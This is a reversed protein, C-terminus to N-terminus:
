PWSRAILVLVLSSLGLFVPWKWFLGFLQDIRLHGCTARVLTLSVLMLLLCKLVFGALGVVMGEGPGPPFFLVVGLGLVAVTRLAQLILYLGLVPKPFEHAPAEVFEAEAGCLGFPGEGAFAPIFFLYTLFAPWLAPTFLLPGQEQQFRVIAALSWAVTEGSGAGVQLGVSLLVPLLAGAWILVLALERSFRVPGFHAGSFREGAVLAVTPGALLLGIEPLGLLFGGGGHIGASLVPVAALAVAVIGLLIALAFIGGRDRSQGPPGPLSLKGLDFVPQLIPPGVRRQLRATVKRDVGSLLLGLLLAFVGGPFILLQFIM